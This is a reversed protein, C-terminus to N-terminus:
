NICVTNVGVGVEEPREVGRGLAVVVFAGSVFGGSLSIKLFGPISTISKTTAAGTLYALANAWPIRKLNTFCKHSLGTVHGYRPAGGPCAGAKSFINTRFFFNWPWVSAKQRKM